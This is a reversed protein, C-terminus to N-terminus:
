LRSEYAVNTMHSMDSNASATTTNPLALEVTRSNSVRKNNDPDINSMNTSESAIRTKPFVSKNKQIQLRPQQKRLHLRDLALEQVLLCAQRWRTSIKLMLLCAQRWCTSITFLRLTTATGVTSIRKAIKYLNNLLTFTINATNQYGPSHRPYQQQEQADRPPEHRGISIM